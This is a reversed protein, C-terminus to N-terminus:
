AGAVVVCFTGFDFGIRLLVLVILHRKRMLLNLMGQLVEVQKVLGCVWSITSIVAWALFSGL